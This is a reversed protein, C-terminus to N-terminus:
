PSWMLPVGCTTSQGWALRLKVGCANHGRFCIQCPNITATFVTCRICTTCVHRGGIRKSALVTQNGWRPSQSHLQSRHLGQSLAATTGGVHHSDTSRAGICDKASLTKKQKSAINPARLTTVALPAPEAATSPQSGSDITALNATSRTEMARAGGLIRRIEAPAIRMSHKQLLADVAQVITPRWVGFLRINGNDVPYKILAKWGDHRDFLKNQQSESHYVHMVAERLSPQSGSGEIMEFQMTEGSIPMSCRAKSSTYGSKNPGFM